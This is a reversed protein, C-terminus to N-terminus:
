VRRKKAARQALVVAVGGLTAASAILLRVTVQESLLMVGGFAAIIPVTLQVTAAQTGTLGPLAAYWIVYGCGSAVAGSALALALGGPSAHVSGAFLLSVALTLPVGWVFNAATAQLPDAAGRGLLSYFGWATGAAAMLLGGIPDPATLGPTMLYVLGAAAAALGMWSLISFHEGARLAMVFMTLQVAGFLILAGTGATLSRYAFSFFAMYVFLALATRWDAHGRFSRGRLWVILSLITAGAAMRVTAFSAADILAHGLALRCLLSNAAFAAMALATLAATRASATQSGTTM